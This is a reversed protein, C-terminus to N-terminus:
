PIILSSAKDNFNNNVLTSDVSHPQATYGDGGGCNKLDQLFVQRGMNNIMSSAANNFSRDSLDCYAHGTLGFVARPGGYNIDAWLCFNNAPCRPDDASASPAPVVAVLLATFLIVACRKM